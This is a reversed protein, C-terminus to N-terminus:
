DDDGLRLRLGLRAAGDDDRVRRTLHRANVQVVGRREVREHLRAVNDAQGAGRGLEEVDAALYARRPLLVKMRAHCERLGYESRAAHRGRRAFADAHADRARARVSAQVEVLVTEFLYFAADHGVGDKLGSVAYLDRARALAARSEARRANRM